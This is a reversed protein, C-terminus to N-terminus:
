KKSTDANILHRMRRMRLYRSFRHEFKQFVKKFDVRHYALGYAPNHCSIPDTALRYDYNAVDKEDESLRCFGCARRCERFM